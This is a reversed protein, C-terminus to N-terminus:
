RFGADQLAQLALRVFETRDIASGPYLPAPQTAAKSTSAIPAGNIEPGSGNTHKGNLTLRHLGQPGASGLDKGDECDHLDARM